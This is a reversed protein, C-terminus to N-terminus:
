LTAGLTNEDTVLSSQPYPRNWYCLYLSFQESSPGPVSTVPTAKSLALRHPFKPVPMSNQQFCHLLELHESPSLRRIQPFFETKTQSNPNSSSTTTCFQRSLAAQFGQPRTASSHLISSRSLELSLTTSDALLEKIVRISLM